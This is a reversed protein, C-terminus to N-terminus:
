TETKRDAFHCCPNTLFLEWLGEQMSEQAHIFPVTTSEQSGQKELLAMDKM